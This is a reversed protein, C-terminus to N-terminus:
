VRQPNANFGTRLKRCGSALCVFFGEVYRHGIARQDYQAEAQTLKRHVTNSGCAICHLTRRDGPDGPLRLLLGRPGDSELESKARTMDADVRASEESEFAEDWLKEWVPLLKTPTDPSRLQGLVELLDMVVYKDPLRTSTFVDYIRSRSYRHHKLKEVMWSLPRLGTELHLRHLEANLQAHAGALGQPKRLRGPRGV